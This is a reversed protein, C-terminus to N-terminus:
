VKAYQDETKDKHLKATEEPLPRNNGEGWGGVEEAGHQCM